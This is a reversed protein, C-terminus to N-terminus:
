DAAMAVSNCGPSKYSPASYIHQSDLSFRCVTYLEPVWRIKVLVFNKESQYKLLNLQKEIITHCWKWSTDNNRIAKFNIWLIQCPTLRMTHIYDKIRGSMISRNLCLMSIVAFLYPTNMSQIKDWLLIQSRSLVHRSYGHVNESREECKKSMCNAESM